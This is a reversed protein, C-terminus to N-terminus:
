LLELSELGKIVVKVAAQHQNFKLVPETSKLSWVCLKNDNGGPLGRLNFFRNFVFNGHTM